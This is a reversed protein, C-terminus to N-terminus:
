TEPPEGPEAQGATSAEHRRRARPIFYHRAMVFGTAVAIVHFVSTYDRSINAWFIPEWIFFALLLIWPRRMTAAAAALLAFGGASGGNFIREGGREVPEVTTVDPYIVHWLAGGVLAAVASAGWFIAFAAGFGLRREVTIGFMLLLGTVLLIQDGETNVFPTVLVNPIIRLPAEVLDPIYYFLIHDTAEDDRNMLLYSPWSPLILLPVVLPVRRVLAVM